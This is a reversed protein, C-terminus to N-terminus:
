SIGRREAATLNMKGKSVPGTESDFSSIGDETCSVFFISFILM